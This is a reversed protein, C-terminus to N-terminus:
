KEVFWVNLDTETEPIGKVWGTNSYQWFTFQYPSEPTPNYDAYWMLANGELRSMDLIDTQTSCNAYIAPTYGAKKVAKCFALANDTFQEGSIYNIRAYYEIQIEPDFVVPLTVEVGSEEIVDLCLQAEECAEAKTVAQSFVYVGVDLGAAKARRLNKVARSDRVLTGSEFMRHGARVFVFDIGSKQVKEWDIKGQFESVDIGQRVAYRKDGEYLLRGNEDYGLYKWNYNHLSANLPFARGHFDEWARVYKKQLKTLSASPDAEAKVDEAAKEETGAEAKAKAKEEAKEPAKDAATTETKTGAQAEAEKKESAKESATEGYAATGATDPAEADPADPVAQGAAEKAQAQTLISLVADIGLWTRLDQKERLSASEQDAGAANRMGRLAPRPMGLASGAFLLCGALLLTILLASLIKITKKM